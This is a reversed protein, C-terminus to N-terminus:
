GSWREEEFRERQGRRRARRLGPRESPLGGGQVSFRPAEIRESRCQPCATPKTLKQRKRFTFGCSLCAAPEVVLREGQHRISRGLHELHQAIEKESVGVRVSLEHANLPEELLEGHLQHRVTSGSGGRQSADIM